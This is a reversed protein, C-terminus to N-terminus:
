VKWQQLALKKFLDHAECCPTGDYIPFSVGSVSLGILGTLPNTGPANIPNLSANPKAAKSSDPDTKKKGLIPVNFTKAIWTEDVEHTELIGKTIEWHKDISLTQTTDFVFRDNDTFSYGQLQLLPILDDNVFFAISRRNVPAIREELNREHVESQSRSSGDDTLMTSGTIAKSVEENNRKIKADFVQYVDTRNSEKIDIETGQPFVAHAAEGLQDLLDDILDLTKDDTLQSTATVLPIGFKECFEAWSQMMNRKWILNPVIDNLIGLELDEGYELIWPEHEPTNYPTYEDAKQFDLIVSKKNPVVNGRPVLKSKIKRDNFEQFEIL